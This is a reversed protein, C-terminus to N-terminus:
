FSFSEDFEQISIEELLLAHEQESLLELDDVLADPQTVISELINQLYGAMRAITAADFLDTNYELSGAIRDGTEVLSLTLDFKATTQQSNFNTMEVAALEEVERPASQLVFMVQFLSTHGMDREPQLEEVLREFPLDQHAYAGLTVERVEKLLERFSIEAPIKTRLVLTNVFFGILGEIDARNRGAIPTGIVIDDQGTYRYLLTQFATLLTMFLTVGEARSLQKLGATLDESLLILQNAGHSSQVSPRLRDTPLQLIAPAGSLAQRWYRLESELVEGQLWERQWAAFDAYQIPLEPLPSPEDNTFATYLTAIERILVGISWGDSVIHHMTFLVIHDDDALRVLGTRLLPGRSLDFPLLADYTVLRRAEILREDESFGGIDTIALHVPAAPMIVQVPLGEVEAFVTRLTEHRRILESLAQELAPVDIRGRLRVSAPVNYAASQPEFRDIFWLRQQSFSLPLQRDRSIPVIPSLEIGEEARMAKEITEAIETITPSEFIVRLPLEISFSERVRSIVQTALLSHGGLEFFNEHIGVQETKLLREWIRCLVEEVPTRAAEYGAAAEGSRQGPEPLAKRDVKGNPTLPVEELTVFASPVM